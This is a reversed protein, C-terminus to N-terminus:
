WGCWFGISSYVPVTRIVVIPPRVVVYSCSPRVTRVPTYYVVSPSIYRPPYYWGPRNDYRNNFARTRDFDRGRDRDNGRDRDGDRMVHGRNGGDRGRDRDAGFSPTAIFMTVAIAAALTLLMKSKHTTKM